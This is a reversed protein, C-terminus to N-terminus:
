RSPLLLADPPALVETDGIRRMANRLAIDTMTEFPLAILMDIRKAMADRIVNFAM